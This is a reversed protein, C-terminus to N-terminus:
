EEPQQVIVVFGTNGVPAFGALWTGGYAPDQKGFPDKYDRKMLASVPHRDNASLERDCARPFGSPLLAKDFPLAAQRPAMSPHLLVVYEPPDESPKRQHPPSSDWPAVLVVKRRDSQVHPVDLTPDTTIAVAVIGILAGSELVPACIDFKDLGDVQSRYVSSVHVSDLGPRGVHAMTGQFYDRKRFDVGIVAAPMRAVLIGQLDMIQWNVVMPESALKDLFGQLDRAERREKVDDLGRYPREKLSRNWASLLTVLEPSRSLAEVRAGWERMRNLFVNSAFRATFVNSELIEDRRAAQRAERIRVADGWLFVLAAALGAMIGLAVLAKHRRSWKAAKALRGIPRAIVPRGELWNELDAAMAGANEYRQGPDKRLAKLCIASLDVDVKPNLKWPEAPEEDQIKRITETFTAAEFPPRGTLAAYLTAGLAHVDVSLTLRKRHPSVQEPAMYPLTGALDGSATAEGLEDLRKALGFDTVHPRGEADVLINGPKLDRHLITRRHAYRIAHAVDVLLQAAARPNERYEQLRGQLSQGRVFKMTYYPQGEHVGFEHIPVINAHDLDAAADAESKFRAIDTASAFQGLQLVKLAVVQTKLERNLAKYVVGMGGRGVEELIEYKGFVSPLPVPVERAARIQRRIWEQGTFFEELECSLDPAAAVAAKRDLTRGEELSRLCDDLITELRRERDSLDNM